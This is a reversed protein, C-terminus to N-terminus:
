SEYDLDLNSSEPTIQQSIGLSGTLTGVDQLGLLTKEGSDLRDGASLSLDFIM